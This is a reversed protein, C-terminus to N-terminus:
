NPHLWVLTFGIPHAVDRVAGHRSVLRLFGSGSWRHGGRGRGLLRAPLRVGIPDFPEHPAALLLHRPAIARLASLGADPDELGSLWRLAVGVDFGGPPAEVEPAVPGRPEAVVDAPGLLTELGTLTRWDPMGLVLSRLPPATPSPRAQMGLAAAMRVVARGVRPPLAAGPGAHAQPVAPGAVMFRHYARLAGTGAYWRRM